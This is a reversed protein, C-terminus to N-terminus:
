ETACRKRLELEKKILAFEEQATGGMPWQAGVMKLTIKTKGDLDNLWFGFNHSPQQFDGLAQGTQNRAMIIGKDYDKLYITTTTDNLVQIIAFFVNKYCYDLVIEESRTANEVDNQFHALHQPASACGPTLLLLILFAFNKSRM